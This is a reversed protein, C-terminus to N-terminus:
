SQERLQELEVAFARVSRSWPIRRSLLDHLSTNYWLFGDRGTKFRSWDVVGDVELDTITARLNHLKDAAAVLLVDDACGALHAIAAEKREQWAAKGCPDETLSDSCSRVIGAVRNGFEAAITSLMAEGGQDEAADHLLGAVVQDEDGGDEIVLSAVGMLHSLYPTGLGKRIQTAHWESAREVARGIRAHDFSM